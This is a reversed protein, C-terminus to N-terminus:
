DALAYLDCWGNPDVKGSVVQCSDPAAFLTCTACRMIDKPRNQYHAKTKSVKRIAAARASGAAGAGLIAGTLALRIFARRGPGKRDLSM